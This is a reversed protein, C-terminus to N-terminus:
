LKSTAVLYNCYLRPAVDSSLVKVESLRFAVLSTLHQRISGNSSPGKSSRPQKKFTGSPYLLVGGLQSEECDKQRGTVGSGCCQLSGVTVASCSRTQTGRKIQCDSELLDARLAARVGVKNAASLTTIRHNELAAQLLMKEVNGM